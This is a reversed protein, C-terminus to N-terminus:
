ALKKRYFDFLSLIHYFENFFLGDLLSSDLIM